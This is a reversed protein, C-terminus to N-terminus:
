LETLEGDRELNDLWNNYQERYMPWDNKRLKHAIAFGFSDDLWEDFMAEMESEFFREGNYDYEIESM